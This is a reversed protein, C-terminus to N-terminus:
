IRWKQKTHNMQCFFFMQTQWNSFDAFWICTPVLTLNATFCHRLYKQESYIIKMKNDSNIKRTQEKPFHM